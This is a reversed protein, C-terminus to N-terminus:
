DEVALQFAAFDALDVDGDGDFDFLDCDPGGGEDEPGALCANFMALDAPDEDDGTSICVNDFSQTSSFDRLVIRGTPYNANTYQTAPTAAGNVFASYTDGVVEIRLHVTTGPTYVNSVQGFPGAASGNTFYYWSLGGASNWLRVANDASPAGTARFYIAGTEAAVLDVEMTFDRLEFPLSTYASGSTANYTGGATSWNGFENGWLPSAGASFNDCFPSPQVAVPITVMTTGQANTVALRYEGTDQSLLPSMVLLEAQAGTIRPGDTLPENNRFWQRTLPGTGHTIPQLTNVGGVLETQPLPPPQEIIPATPAHRVMNWEAGGDVATAPFQLATVQLPTLTIQGQPRGLEGYNNNAGCTWVAGDPKLFISSSRGAALDSIPSVGIPQVPSTRRTATGDGLRGGNDGWAWASNDHRMALSHFTGARVRQVTNLGVVPVPTHRETFTGDGLQGEINRGWSQVTGDSKLALVHYAGSAIAIVDTLGTAKVPTRTQSVPVAGNGLEGHYAWGWGWVTGDSKLVHCTTAGAAIAVVCDLNPIVVPRTYPVPNGVALGRQWFGDSGWVWVTGDAKLAMCHDGWSGGNASVEVVDSLGQVQIAAPPYTNDNGQGLAGNRNYGWAWVTGDSKLALTAWNGGSVQVVDSLQAVERIYPKPAYPWGLLNNGLQGLDNRGFSSVQRGNGPAPFVHVRVANSLVYQSGDCTSVVCDYTGGHTPQAPDIVLTNTAAGSVGSGDVLDAQNMRWQYTLLAGNGAVSLTLSQGERVLGCDQGPQMTIVPHPLPPLTYVTSVNRVTSWFDQQDQPYRAWYADIFQQITIPQDLRVVTFIAADRGAMVDMDCDAMGDGDADENNGDDMDFLLASAYGEITTPDIPQGPCTRLQEINYLTDNAAAWPILGYRAPYGRAVVSGLWNPWGENWADTVNEPCWVCHGCDEEGPDPDCVNNCYDPETNIAYNNMFHHGYEHGHTIENWERDPSIHIEEFDPTYFAGTDDEPWQVDLEEVATGDVEIIHRYARVISNSIHIAAHQGADAPMLTGFDLYTGTFDDWPDADTSWSYDEELLDARQVNVIENDTEWRIYIDPEDCGSIDCDDWDFSVDFTGDSNTFGSAMAEDSVTDEDMIQFWMQDAGLIDNPSALDPRRYVIRGVIRLHISGGRLGANPTRDVRPVTIGDGSAVVQGFDDIRVALGDRAGEEFRKASLNFSKTAVRGEFGLRVRLPSEADDPRGQFRIAVVDGARVDVPVALDVSDISWGDGSLEFADIVGDRGVAVEIIGSYDEGSAAPLTTAKPLSIKVSPGVDGFASPTHMAAALIALTVARARASRFRRRALAGRMPSPGPDAIMDHAEKRHHGRWEPHRPRGYKLQNRGRAV